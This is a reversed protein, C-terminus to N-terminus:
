RFIHRFYYYQCTEQEIYGYIATTYYAPLSLILGNLGQVLTSSTEIPFVCPNSDLWAIRIHVLFVRALRFINLVVDKPGMGLVATFGSTGNKKYMALTVMCARVCEKIFLEIPFATMYEAEIQKAV